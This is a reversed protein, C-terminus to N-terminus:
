ASNSLTYNKFSTDFVTCGWCAVTKARTIIKDLWKKLSLHNRVDILLIFFSFKFVRNFSLDAGGRQFFHDEFM